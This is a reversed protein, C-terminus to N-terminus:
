VSSQFYFLYLYIIDYYKLIVSTRRHQCFVFGVKNYLSKLADLRASYENPDDVASSEVLKRGNQILTEIESKMESLADFFKQTM